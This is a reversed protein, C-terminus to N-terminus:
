GADYAMEQPSVVGSFAAYATECWCVVGSVTVYTKSLRWSYILHSEDGNWFWLIGVPSFLLLKWKNWM